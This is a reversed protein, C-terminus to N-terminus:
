QQGTDFPCHCSLRQPKIMSWAMPWVNSPQSFSSIVRQQSVLFCENKVVLVIVHTAASEPGLIQVAISELMLFLAKVITVPDVVIIVIVAHIQVADEAHINCIVSRENNRSLIARENNGSINNRNL